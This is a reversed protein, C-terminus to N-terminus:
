AKNMLAKIASAAIAPQDPYVIYWLDYSAGSNSFNIKKEGGGAEDRLVEHSGLFDDDSDTDYEYLRVEARNAFQHDKNITRSQRDDFKKPGWFKTGNITIYTDDDGTWDEQRNCRLAILRLIPM